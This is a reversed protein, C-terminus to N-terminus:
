NSLLAQGPGRIQQGSQWITMTEMQHFYLKDTPGPTLILKILQFLKPYFMHAKGLSSMKTEDM